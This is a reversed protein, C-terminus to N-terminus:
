WRYRSWAASPQPSWTVEFLRDSGLRVGGGAIASRDGTPWCPCRCVGPLGLGRSISVASPSMSRHPSRVASAGAAHLSSGALLVPGVGFGPWAPAEASLVVAHTADLLAPHVEFGTVSPIPPCRWRRSCRMVERWMATLGRFAPGYGYGREALQQYGDAVEVPVTSAPLMLM